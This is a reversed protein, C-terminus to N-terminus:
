AGQAAPTHLIVRQLCSGGVMASPVMSGRVARTEASSANASCEDPRGPLSSVRILLGSTVARSRLRAYEGPTASGQRCM